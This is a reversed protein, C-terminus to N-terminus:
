LKFIGKLGKGLIKAGKTASASEVDVIYVHSEPNDFNGTACTVYAKGDEVFLSATYRKGHPNPVGSIDTVTKNNLDLVVLKLNDNNVFTYWHNTNEGTGHKTDDLIIRALAKGNGVYDMWFIKGGNSANEVDFFYDKDFETQGNKIRIIGSKKTGSTFGSTLSSSSYAYIDGNETKQIGTNHGHIGIAGTRADEILKELQMSPYSFVALHSKNTDLTVAGGVGDFKFYSVFLKGDREVMGTVWPIAGPNEKTGDGKLIDIPHNVTNELNGTQPNIFYFKKDQYGSFGLDVALVTNDDITTFCQLDNDFKFNGIEKLKGNVYGYTKCKKNDASKAYGATLVRNNTNHYYQWSSQTIGNGEASIEGTKLSELNDVSLVYDVPQKDGVPYAQLGVVYKSPTITDKNEDKVPNETCSFTLVATALIAFTNKFKFISRTKM